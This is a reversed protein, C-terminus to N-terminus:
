DDLRQSVKLFLLAIEVICRLKEVHYIKTFHCLGRGKKQYSMLYFPEIASPSFQLKETM